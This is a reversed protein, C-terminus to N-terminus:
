LNLDQRSWWIRQQQNVISLKFYLAEFFHLGCETSLLPCFVAWIPSVKTKQWEAGLILLRQTMVEGVGHEQWVKFVAAEWDQEMAAFSSSRQRIGDAGWVGYQRQDDDKADQDYKAFADSASM